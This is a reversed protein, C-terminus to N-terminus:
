TLRVHHQTHIVRRQIEADNRSGDRPQVVQDVLTTVCCTGAERQAHWGDLDSSSVLGDLVQQGVDGCTPESAEPM